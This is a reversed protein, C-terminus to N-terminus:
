CDGACVYGLQLTIPLSRLGMWGSDYSGDCKRMDGKESLAFLFSSIQASSGVVEGEFESM